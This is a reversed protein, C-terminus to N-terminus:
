NVANAYHFFKGDDKLGSAIGEVASVVIPNLHYEAEKEMAGAGLLSVMSRNFKPNGSCRDLEALIVKALHRGGYDRNQTMASITDAVALIQCTISISFPSKAEYGKGNLREHHYRVNGLIKEMGQFLPEGTLEEMAVNINNLRLIGETPHEKIIEWEDASPKRPSTVIDFIDERTKGTDHVLASEAIYDLDDRHIIRRRVLEDVILMAIIATQRHHRGLRDQIIMRPDISAKQEIQKAIEDRIHEIRGIPKLISNASVQTLPPLDPNMIWHLGERDVSPPMDSPRVSAKRFPGISPKVFPRHPM